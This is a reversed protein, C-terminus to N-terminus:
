GYLSSLLGDMRLFLFLGQIRFLLILLFILRSFSIVVVATGWELFIATDLAEAKFYTLEILTAEGLTYFTSPSSQNNYCTEIWGASRATNSIRFEDIGGNFYYQNTPEDSGFSLSASDSTLTALPITYNVVLLPADASSGDESEATREGTGDIIIVLSNGSSWGSRNVIEQIITKIDPTQQDAGAAGSTWAPVNSWAVSASTKTRSTINNTTDTFTPANDIDEGYITLNTADSDDSKATFQIYANTVNAGQPITVNQFRVGVEQLGNYYIDDVLELDSSDLDMAGSSIIEEADDSSQNVSISINSTGTSGSTKFWGSVTFSGTGFDFDSDYLRSIYDNSGDLELSGDIKGTVQDDSTMSGITTFDNSNSTSDDMQPATCSPDEKLHWVGKYCSSWVDSVHQTDGSVDSSGYYMYIRTHSTGSLTPIKVWAVYEGTTEDYKEIEHKFIESGDSEAFVIDYGNSNGM